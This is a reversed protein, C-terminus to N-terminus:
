QVKCASKHIFIEMHHVNYILLHIKQQDNKGAQKQVGSIKGGLCIRFVVHDDVPQGPLVPKRVLIDVADVEVAPAIGPDARESSSQDSVVPIREDPERLLGVRFEDAVEHVLAAFVVEASEPNRARSAHGDQVQIGQDQRFIEGSHRPRPALRIGGAGDDFVGVTAHPERGVVHQEPDSEGVVPVPEDDIGQVAPDRIGVEHGPDAVHVIVAGDPCGDVPAEEPDPM